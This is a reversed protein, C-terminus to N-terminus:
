VYRDERTTWNSTNLWLFLSPRISSTTGYLINRVVTDVNDRGSQLGLELSKITEMDVSSVKGFEKQIDGLLEEAAGYASKFEFEKERLKDMVFRVALARRVPLPIGAKARVVLSAIDNLTKSLRAHRSFETMRKRIRKVFEDAEALLGTTLIFVERWRTDLLHRDVLVLPSERNTNETINKAAFFEQFTLHSFSYVRFAREVLLGHQAEIEKLVETSDYDLEDGDKSSKLNKM